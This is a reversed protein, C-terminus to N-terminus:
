PPWATPAIPTTSEVSRMKTRPSTRPSAAATPSAARPTERSSPAGRQGYAASAQLGTIKEVHRCRSDDAQEDFAAVLRADQVPDGLDDEPVPGVDAVDRAARPFTRDGLDLQLDRSRALLVSQDGFDLSHGADTTTLSGTSAPTIATISM